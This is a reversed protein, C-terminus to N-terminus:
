GLTLVPSQEILKRIMGREAYGILRSIQDTEEDEM